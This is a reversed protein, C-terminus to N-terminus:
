AATERAIFAESIKRRKMKRVTVQFGSGEITEGGVLAGFSEDATFDFKDSALMESVFTVRQGLRELYTKFIDHALQSDGEERTAEALTPRARAFEDIDSQLFIMHSGDLSDLYRDLFKGALEANLKQHAFQSNELLKSTLATIAADTAKADLNQENRFGFAAVCTILSASFAAAPIIIKFNPKM